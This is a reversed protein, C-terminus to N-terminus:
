LLPQTNDTESGPDLGPATAKVAQVGTLLTTVSVTSERVLVVAAGVLNGALLAAFLWVAIVVRCVVDCVPVDLIPARRTRSPRGIVEGELRPHQVLVALVRRERYLPYGPLGGVFRPTFAATPSASM